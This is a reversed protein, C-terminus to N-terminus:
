AARWLPKIGKGLPRNQEHQYLLVLPYVVVAGLALLPSRRLGKVPMKVRWAFVNKYLGKFPEIAHSRLKHFINRVEVGEDGHPAPGRRTAVLEGGRRHCPQRREPDNDHTAGLV